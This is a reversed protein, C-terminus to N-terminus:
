QPLAFKYVNLYWAKGISGARADLVGLNCM